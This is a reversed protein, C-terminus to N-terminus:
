AEKWAAAGQKGESDWDLPNMKKQAKNTQLALPSVNQLYRM